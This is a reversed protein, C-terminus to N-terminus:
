CNAVDLQAILLGSVQKIMPADIMEEGGNELPLGIAGRENAHAQRMYHGIRTARAIELFDNHASRWQEKM